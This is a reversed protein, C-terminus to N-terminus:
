ELVLVRVTNPALDLEPIALRDGEIVARLERGTDFDRVRVGAKGHGLKKWEIWATFRRPGSAASYLTILTKGFREPLIAADSTTVFSIPEWGARTLAYVTDLHKEYEGLVSPHQPQNFFQDRQGIGTRQLYVYIGKATYLPLFRRIDALLEEHAPRGKETARRETDMFRAWFTISRQYAVMRELYIRRLRTELDEDYLEHYYRPKDDGPGQRWRRGLERVFLDADQGLTGSIPYGNIALAANEPMALRLARLFATVGVHELSVIRGTQRDYSLPPSAVALMDPNFDTRLYAGVTDVAVGDYVMPGHKDHVHVYERGYVGTARRAIELNLHGFNDTAIPPPGTPKGKRAAKARALEAIVRVGPDANIGNIFCTYTDKVGAAPVIVRGSSLSGTYGGSADRFISRSIPEHVAFKGFLRLALNTPQGVQLPELKYYAGQMRVPGYLMREVPKVPSEICRTQSWTDQCTEPFRLRGAEYDEYVTTCAAIQANVSPDCAECPGEVPVLGLRMGRDLYGMPWSYLLNKIGRKRNQGLFANWMAGIHFVSPDPYVRDDYSGDGTMTLQRPLHGRFAQPQVRVYKDLAAALGWRPEDSRFLLLRFSTSHPQTAHASYIGLHFCARLRRPGADYEVFYAAPADPHMALVLGSTDDGVLNLGHLNIPLETKLHTSQGPRSWHGIDLSQTLLTHYVKGAEITESQHLHHHWTKGVLDVPVALCAEIAREVAPAGTAPGAAALRTDTITAELEIHHEHATWSEVVRLAHAPSEREMRVGRPEGQQEVRPLEASDVLVRGEHDLISVGLPEAAAALDVDLGPMSLRTFRRQAVDLEVVLGDSTALGPTEPLRSVTRPASSCALLCGALAVRFAHTLM